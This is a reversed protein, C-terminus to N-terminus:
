NGYKPKRGRKKPADGIMAKRKKERKHAKVRMGVM